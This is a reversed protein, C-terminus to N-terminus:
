QSQVPLFQIIDIEWTATSGLTAQYNFKVVSKTEPSYFYIWKGCSKGGCWHNTEIKFAQYTGAPSTIQEIGIISSEATGRQRRNTGRIRTEFENTRKQGVIFPFKLHLTERMYLINNWVSDTPIRARTGGDTEFFGGELFCIKHDGNGPIALVGSVYGQFNKSVSRFVWCEGEKYVPAQAEQAFVKFALILLVGIILFLLVTKM